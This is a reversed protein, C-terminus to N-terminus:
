HNEMERRGQAPTKASSPLSPGPAIPPRTLGARWKIKSAGRKDIQKRFIEAPFYFPHLSSRSVFLLGSFGENPGPMESSPVLSGTENAGYASAASELSVPHFSCVETFDAPDANAVQAEALRVSCVDQCRGCSVRVSILSGTPDGM